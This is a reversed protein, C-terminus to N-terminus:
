SPEEIPGRRDSTIRGDELQIVRDAFRYTRADHTVILVARDPQVAIDRLLEIVAQGSKADLSSTPEDCVVLRPEHVLARAIAVRQQQGGSLQNPTKAAQTEIGLRKLMAMAKAEAEKRSVGAALLAVSANELATLTPLLNFQQFAFGITERRFKALKSIKTGSIDEGFVEVEGGDATLIASLISIFTTKGSGSEGILFTMEGGFIDLDIGHLVRIKAGGSGFDKIIGRARIVTKRDHDPTQATMTM